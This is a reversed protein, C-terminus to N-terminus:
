YFRSLDIHASVVSDVIKSLLRPCSLAVLESFNLSWTLEM